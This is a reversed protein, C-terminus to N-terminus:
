SAVPQLESDFKSTKKLYNYRRGATGFSIWANQANNSPPAAGEASAGGLM